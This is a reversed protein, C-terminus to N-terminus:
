WILDFHVPFAVQAQKDILETEVIGLHKCFLNHRQLKSEKQHTRDRARQGRESSVATDRPKCPVKVYLWPFYKDPFNYDHIENFYKLMVDKCEDTGCICTRYGPPLNHLRKARKPREKGAATPKPRLKSLRRRRAKSEKSLVSTDGCIALVLNRALKDVDLRKYNRLRHHKAWARLSNASHEIKLRQATEKGGCVLSKEQKSLIISEAYLECNPCHVDHRKRCVEASSSKLCCPKSAACSYMSCKCFLCCKLPTVVSIYMLSM